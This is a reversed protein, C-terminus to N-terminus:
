KKEISLNELVNPILDALDDAILGIGKILATKSHIWVAATSAEFLPMGQALLGAIIGSLVDGSGATALNVSANYNIVAEGNYNAIVTDPGKLVVVTNFLKAAHIARELRNGKIKPLIRSLEGDHPTLVVNGSRQLITTFDQINNQFSSIGDADIVLKVNQELLSKVMDITNDSVGFGPGIVLSNIKKKKILRNIHDKTVYPELMISLLTPAYSEIANENIAITVLGSGIRLAALASLRAAGGKNKKGGMVLTHGKHYKHIQSNYKPLKEKWLEPINVYVSSITEDYCEEPIGIDAIIIEGCNQRGPYLLHGRKLFEFTITKTANIAAGRMEGSSADIGTPIDISIIPVMKQNIEKVLKQKSVDLDRKVGTGLIADVILDPNNCLATEYSEAPISCLDKMIKIDPSIEKNKNEYGIKVNFGEAQLRRAVVFGDGGNSGTGCMVLVLCPPYNSKIFNSVSRGAREMLSHKNKLVKLALSDLLLSQKSNLVNSHVIGSIDM